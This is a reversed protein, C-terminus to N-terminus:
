YTNLTLSIQSQGSRRWSRARTSAKPSCCRRPRTDCIMSGSARSMRRAALMAQFERTVNRPDLPTGAAVRVRARMTGRRRRRGDTGRATAKPPGKPRGRRDAAHPDDSPEARVETRRVHDGNPADALARPERRTAACTGAARRQAKARRRPPGPDSAPGRRTSSPRRQRGRETRAGPARQLTGADFDVDQWRLGLAEGQRLGLATAVSVIAGLRHATVSDLLTRAQEPTLPQIEQASPAASRRARRCQRHGPAVEAGSEPSGAARQAHLPYEAREDQAQHAVFWTDVHAPTLRPLPVKGIGPALHLRVASRTPPGSARGSDHANTTSGAHSFGNWPRARTVLRCVRNRRNSRKPCNTPSKAGRADMSISGRGSAMRGASIWARRGAATAASASRGKVKEASQWTANGEQARRTDAPEHSSARPFADYNTLYVRRQCADSCYERRGLKIFPKRCDPAPCIRLRDVGTKEVM